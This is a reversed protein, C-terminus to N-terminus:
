LSWGAGGEWPVQCSCCSITVVPHDASAVAYHQERSRECEPLKFFALWLRRPEARSCLQAPWRLQGSCSLAPSGGRQAAGAWLTGYCAWVGHMRGLAPVALCGAACLAPLAARLLRACREWRAGTKARLEDLGGEEEAWELVLRRGYLHTGQVAEMANRAEQKTAFDVFAFGRCAAPPPRTRSTSAAYHCARCRLPPPLATPPAAERAAQRAALTACAGVAVNKRCAPRTRFRASRVARAAQHGSGM